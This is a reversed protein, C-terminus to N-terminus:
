QLVDKIRVSRSEMEGCQSEAGHPPSIGRARNAAISGGACPIGAITASPPLFERECRAIPHYEAFPAITNRRPSVRTAVIYLILRLYIVAGGGCHSGHLKTDLKLDVPSM